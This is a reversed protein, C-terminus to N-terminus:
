SAIRAATAAESVSAPQPPPEDVVDVVVDVEAVAAAIAGAAMGDPLPAIDDAMAGDAVIGVQAAPSGTTQTLVFDLTKWERPSSYKPLVLCPPYMHVAAASAAPLRAALAEEILLFPDGAGSAAAM